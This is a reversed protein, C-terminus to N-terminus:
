KFLGKGAWMLAEELKTLATSKERGDKVWQNIVEASDSILQRIIRQGQQAHLIDVAAPDQATQFRARIDEQSERRLESADPTDSGVFQNFINTARPLSPLIGEPRQENKGYTISTVQVNLGYESELPEAYTAAEELTNFKQEPRALSIDPYEDNSDFYMQVVYQGDSNRRLLYGNDASM